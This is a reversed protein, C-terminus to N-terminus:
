KYFDEDWGNEGSGMLQETVQYLLGVQRYPMGVLLFNKVGPPTLIEKVNPVITGQRRIKPVKYTWYSLYVLINPVIYARTGFKRNTPDFFGLFQGTDENFKAGNKEDGLSGAFELFNKNTEIPDQGSAGPFQVIKPTPDTAIGIYQCTLTSKGARNREIEHEYVLLRPDDPHRSYIQPLLKENSRDVQFEVTAELTGDNKGKVKRDPQIVLGKKVLDGFEKRM